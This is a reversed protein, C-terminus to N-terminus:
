EEALGTFPLGVEPILGQGGSGQNKGLCGVVSLLRTGAWTELGVSMSVEGCGM